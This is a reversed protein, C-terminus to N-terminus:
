TGLREARPDKLLAGQLMLVHANVHKRFKAHERVLAIPLRWMERVELAEGFIVAILYDFGGMELNRIGGLQRSPNEATIRRGKVQYRRGASDLADYAATSKGALTLGLRRVAIAEAWDAVPGNASRIIGRRRLESSRGM